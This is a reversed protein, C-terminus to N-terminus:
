KRDIKYLDPHSRKYGSERPIHSCDLVCLFTNYDGMSSRIPTKSMLPFEKFEELVLDDVDDCVNFIIVNAYSKKIKKIIREIPNNLYLVDSVNRIELINCGLGESNLLNM